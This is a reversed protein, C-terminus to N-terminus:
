AAARNNYGDDFATYSLLHNPVVYGPVNPIFMEPGREGIIYPQNASTPGGDAKWTGAVTTNGGLTDYAGSGMSYNSGGGGGGGGGFMSGMSGAFPALALSGAFGLGSMIDSWMSNQNQANYQQQLMALQAQEQGGQMYTNAMNSGANMAFGGTTAAANQGLQGLNQLSSMYPGWAYTQALNQGFNEAGKLAAGGGGQGSAAGYRLMAQNGQDQLFQYGPTGKLTATPDLATYGPLGLLGAEQNLGAAGAQRFPAEYAAAQNFMQQEAQIASAQSQAIQGSAGSTDPTGGWYCIRCPSASPLKYRDHIQIDGLINFM